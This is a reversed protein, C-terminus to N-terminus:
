KTKEILYAKFDSVCFFLNPKGPLEWEDLLYQSGILSIEKELIKNPTEKKSLLINRHNILSIQENSTFRELLLLHGGLPLEKYIKKLIKIRQAKPIFVLTLFSVITDFGIFSQKTIDAKLTPLPNKELMKEVTDIGLYDINKEEIYKQLQRALNGTSCGLELLKADQFLVSQTYIAFLKQAFDYFPLQERVHEDFKDAIQHFDWYTNM